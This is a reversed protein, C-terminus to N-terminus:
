DDLRNVLPEPAPGAREGLMWEVRPILDKKKLQGLVRGIVKGEANLFATGPVVGVLGLKEMAAINGGVWIPFNVKQQKLFKPIAGRTSEDDISIGIVAVREPYRKQLKVLMPMEEKCPACWTAWFNVVVVKGAYDSLRQSRGDLDTLVLEPRAEEAAAFACFLLALMSLILIRM